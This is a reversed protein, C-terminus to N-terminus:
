SGKLSGYGLAKEPKTVCFRHLLAIKRPSDPVNLLQTTINTHLLDIM